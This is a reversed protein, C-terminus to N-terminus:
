EREEIGGDGHKRIVTLSITAAARARLRMRVVPFVGTADILAHEVGVNAIGRLRADHADELGAGGSCNAARNSPLDCSVDITSLGM